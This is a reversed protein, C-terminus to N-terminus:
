FFPNFGFVDGREIWTKTRHAYGCTWKWEGKSSDSLFQEVYPLADKGILSALVDLLVSVGMGSFAVEEPHERAWALKQIILPVAAIGEDVLIRGRTHDYIPNKLIADILQPLNSAEKGLRAGEVLAEIGLSTAAPMVDMGRKAYHFLTRRHEEMVAYALWGRESIGIGRTRYLKEKVEECLQQLEQRTMGLEKLMVDLRRELDEASKVEPVARVAKLRAIVARTYVPSPYIREKLPRLDEPLEEESYANAIREWKPLNEELFPLLSADDIHLHSLAVLAGYWLSGLGDAAPDVRKPYDGTLIRIALTKRQEVPVDQSRLVLYVKYHEPSGTLKLADIQQAFLIAQSTYRASQADTPAAGPNSQAHSLATLLMVISIWGMLKHTNRM